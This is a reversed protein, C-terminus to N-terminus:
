NSYSFITRRIVNSVIQNEIEIKWTRFPEELYCFPFCHLQKNRGIWQSGYLVFLLKLPISLIGKAVDACIDNVATRVEVEELDGDDNWIAIMSHQDNLQRFKSLVKEFTKRIDRPSNGYTPLILNEDNPNFPPPGPFIKRFRMIEIIMQHNERKIRLDPGQRGLPEFEIEFGLGLFVIGFRIEVLYDEIQEKDKSTAIRAFVNNVGRVAQIRKFCQEQFEAVEAGLIQHIQKIAKDM